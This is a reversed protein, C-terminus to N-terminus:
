WIEYKDYVACQRIPRSLETEYEESIMGIIDIMNNDHKSKWDLRDYHNLNSKLM